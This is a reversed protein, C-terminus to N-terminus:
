DLFRLPDDELIRRRLERRHTLWAAEAGSGAIDGIDPLALIEKRLADIFAAQEKTVRRWLMM